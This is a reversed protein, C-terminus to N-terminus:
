VREAFEVSRAASPQGETSSKLLAGCGAQPRELEGAEPDATSTSTKESDSRPGGRRGISEEIISLRGRPATSARSLTDYRPSGRPVGKPAGNGAAGAGAAGAGATKTGFFSNRNRVLSPRGYCSSSRRPPQVEHDAAAPAAGRGGRRARGDFSATGSISSEDESAQPVGLWCSVGRPLVRSAARAMAGGPGAEEAMAVTSKVPVLRLTLSQGGPPGGSQGGLSTTSQSSTRLSAPHDRAARSEAREPPRPPVSTSRDLSPAAPALHVGDPDILRDIDFLDSSQHSSLPNPDIKSSRRLISSVVAAQRLYEQEAETGDIQLEYATPKVSRIRRALWCAGLLFIFALGIAGGLSLYV